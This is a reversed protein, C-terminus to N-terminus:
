YEFAMWYMGGPYKPTVKFCAGVTMRRLSPSFVVKKLSPPVVDVDSATAASVGHFGADV